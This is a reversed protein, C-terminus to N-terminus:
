CGRDTFGCEGPKCVKGHDTNLVCKECNKKNPMNGFFDTYDSCGECGFIYGHKTCKGCDEDSDNYICGTNIM